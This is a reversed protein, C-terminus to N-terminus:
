IWRRLCAQTRERAGGDQLLAATRVAETMFPLPVIGGLPPAADSASTLAADIVQEALRFLTLTERPASLEGRCRAPNRRASSGALGRSSEIIGGQYPMRGTTRQRLPDGGFEKFGDSGAHFSAGM